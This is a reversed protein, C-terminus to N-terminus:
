PAGVEAFTLVLAQVGDLGDIRDRLAQEGASDPSDAVLVLLDHNVAAVVDCGPLEALRRRVTDREGPEPIVLYSCIGM